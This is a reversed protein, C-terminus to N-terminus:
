GLIILMLIGGIICPPCSRNKKKDLPSGSNTEPMTKEQDM